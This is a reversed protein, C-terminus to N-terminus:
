VKEISRLDYCAKSETCLSQSTETKVNTNGKMSGSLIRLTKTEGGGLYGKIDPCM